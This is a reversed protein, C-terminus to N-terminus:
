ADHRRAEAICGVAVVAAVAAGLDLDLCMLAAATLVAIVAAASLQQRDPAPIM